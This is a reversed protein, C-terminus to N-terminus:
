GEWGFKGLDVRGAASFEVGEDELLLRQETQSDPAGREAVKGSASIVRYWPVPSRDPLERLSKGVLRARGLLGAREAVQGYTAVKGPPIAAVVMWIMEYRNLKSM